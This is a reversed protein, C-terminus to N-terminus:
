PRGLAERARKVGAKLASQVSRQSFDLTEGLITDPEIIV